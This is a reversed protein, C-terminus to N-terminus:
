KKKAKKEKKPLPTNLAKKMLGEFSLDTKVVIDKRDNSKKDRKGVAM